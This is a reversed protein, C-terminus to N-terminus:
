AFAHRQTDSFFKEALPMQIAKRAADSLASEIVSICSIQPEPSRGQAVTLPRIEVFVVVHKFYAIRTLSAWRWSAM